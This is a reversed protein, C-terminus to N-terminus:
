DALVKFMEIWKLLEHDSDQLLTCTEREVVHAVMVNALAQCFAAPYVKLQATRWSKDANRGISTQTPLKKTRQFFALRAQVNKPPRVMMM